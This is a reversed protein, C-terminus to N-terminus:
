TGGPDEIRKSTPYFMNLEQLTFQHKPSRTHGLRVVLRRSRNITLFCLYIHDELEELHELFSKQEVRFERAVKKLLEVKGNRVCMNATSEIEDNLRRVMQSM